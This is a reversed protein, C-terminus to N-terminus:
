PNVGAEVRQFFLIQRSYGTMTKTLILNRILQIVAIIIGSIIIAGIILQVVILIIGTIISLVLSSIIFGPVTWLIIGSLLYSITSSCFCKNLRMSTM